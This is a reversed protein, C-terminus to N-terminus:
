KIEDIHLLYAFALCDIHIFTHHLLLNHLVDLLKDHGKATVECEDAVLIVQLDIAYFM